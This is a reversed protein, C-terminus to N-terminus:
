LILDRSGANISRRLCALTNQSAQTMALLPTKQEFYLGEIFRTAFYDGTGGYNPHLREHVYEQQQRQYLLCMRLQDPHPLSTALLNLRPFRIQFHDLLEAPEESSLGSLLQLETFNPLAWDARELLLPWAAIVEQPVYARGHDGSVPDVIIGEILDAYEDLCQCILQTQSAHGLYGVYVLLREELTRALAFSHRLLPAFDVETKIVHPLNTLGSLYLSAVPLVRTGLLNMVVKLSATGHVALSHICLVKVTSFPNWKQSLCIARNKRKM